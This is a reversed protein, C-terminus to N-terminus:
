NIATGDITLKGTTGPVFRGYLDSQGAPATKDTQTLTNDGSVTGSITVEGVNATGVVVGVRWGGDDTSTLTNNKVTCNTITHYTAPNNGAHGIIAGVSGNATITCRTVSCNTITIYTDVAGDNQNNYGATWGILGGVRAGLTDTITSDVLHCNNLEIKPMSDVCNIFAGYGQANNSTINAEAITLNNIIVGSNGAFGGALLTDNLGSITHGNGNITIVGAGNYGDIVVPTWTEGEALTIDEAINITANGSGADTFQTLMTKLEAATAVTATKVEEADENAQDDYTNNYSDYEYPTQYANVTIGIGNIFKDMYKNGAEEKMHGTITIEGSKTNPMLVGNDTGTITWEIAENLEADGNIGTIVIEYEIALNGKNLVFIDDLTYTCGPEWLIPEDEHGTAKAFDLTKGVLTEGAENVLDVDLNGSKITNVETTANDTFWAFTSGILMTMCLVLSLVSALLARKTNKRQTMKYM